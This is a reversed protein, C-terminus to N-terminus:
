RGSDSLEDSVLGSDSPTQQSSTGASSGNEAEKRGKKKKVMNTAKSAVSVASNVIQGIIMRKIKGSGRRPPIMTTKKSGEPQYYHSAPEMTISNLSISCSFNSCFRLFKLLIQINSCLFSPTSHTVKYLFKVRSDHSM